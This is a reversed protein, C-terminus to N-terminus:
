TLRGQRAAGNQLPVPAGSQPDTVTGTVQGASFEVRTTEVVEKVFLYIAQTLEEALRPINEVEERRATELNRIIKQKLQDTNYVVAM